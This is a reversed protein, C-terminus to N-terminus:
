GGMPGSAQDPLRYGDRTLIRIPDTGDWSACTAANKRHAAMMAPSYEVLETVHGFDKYTDFYEVRLPGIFQAVSPYGLAEYHRRTRDFDETITCLHHLGGSGQPFIERYISPTDSTQQILELQIPGAQSVALQMEVQTEQGRYAVAYTRKPMVLFPGVGYVTTWKRMSEYLDDVVWAIQFFRYEGQPWGTQHFHNFPAGPAEAAAEGTM